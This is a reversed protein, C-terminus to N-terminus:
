RYESLQRRASWSLTRVDPAEVEVEDWGMEVYGKPHPQGRSERLHARRADDYAESGGRARPRWVTSRTTRVRLDALPYDHLSTAVDVPLHASKGLHDPSTSHHAAHTLRFTKYSSSPSRFPLQDAFATAPLTALLVDLWLM